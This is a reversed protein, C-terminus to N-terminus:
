HQLEAQLQFGLAVPITVELQVPYDTLGNRLEQNLEQLHGHGHLLCSNLHCTFQLQNEQRLM